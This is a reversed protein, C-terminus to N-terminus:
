VSDDPRALERALRLVVGTGFGKRDLHRALAARTRGTAARRSLWREAVQRAAKEEGEAFVAAVAAAAEEEPAGRRELEARMRLPGYGRRSLPGAALSRACGADDLYGLEALKELTAAVVSEDHGRRALKEGLEASFHPRRSLLDCAKEFCSSAM